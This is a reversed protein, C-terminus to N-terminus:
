KDKIRNNRVTRRRINEKENRCRTIRGESQIVNSQANTYKYMIKYLYVDL